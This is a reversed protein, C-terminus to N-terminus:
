KESRVAGAGAGAVEVLEQLASEGRDRAYWRRIQPRLEDKPIAARNALVWEQLAAPRPGWHGVERSEEDLVIVIPISRTGGTLYRDMLEPHEDRRLIRLELAPSLGAWRALVPVTSFGDNCWDEALVLFRRPPAAAAAAAAWDPLRALRHVGSWLEGYERSAAVFDDFSLAEAWRAQFDPM